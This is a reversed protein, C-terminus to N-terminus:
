KVFYLAMGSNIKESSGRHNRKLSKGISKRLLKGFKQNYGSIRIELVRAKAESTMNYDRTQLSSGKASKM